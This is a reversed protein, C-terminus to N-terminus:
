QSAQGGPQQGPRRRPRAPADPRAESVARLQELEARAGGLNHEAARLRDSLETRNEELVQARSNLAERLEDRERAADARAQAAADRADAAARDTQALRETLQQRERDAAARLQELERAADLHAPPQGPVGPVVAVRGLGRPGREGDGEFPTPSPSIQDM